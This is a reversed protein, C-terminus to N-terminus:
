KGAELEAVRAYLEECKAALTLMIWLSQHDFIQEWRKPDRHLEAHAARAMPMTYLDSAKTGMGSMGHGASVIHHADDSEMGTVVCPLTRVWKLHAPSRYTKSKIM